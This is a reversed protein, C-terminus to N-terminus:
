HSVHGVNCYRSSHCALQLGGSLQMFTIFDPPFVPFLARLTLSLAKASRCGESYFSELNEPPLKVVRHQAFADYTWFVCECPIVWAGFSHYHKNLHIYISLYQIYGIYCVTKRYYWCKSSTWEFEVFKWLINKITHKWWWEVNKGQSQLHVLALVFGRQKPKVHQAWSCVRATLSM